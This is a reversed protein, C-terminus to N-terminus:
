KVRHEIMVQYKYTLPKEEKGPFVGKKPVFVFSMNFLYIAKDKPKSPKHKIEEFRYNGTFPLERKYGVQQLLGEDIPLEKGGEIDQWPIEKMYLKQVRNAYLLNVLHDLEVTEVFARESKLIVVHPFILPLICLVVLAFAILVELLVIPRANSCYFKM